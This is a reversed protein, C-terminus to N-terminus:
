TPAEHDESATVALPFTSREIVLHHMRHLSSVGCSTIMTFIRGRYPRRRQCTRTRSRQLCHPLWRIAVLCRPGLGGAPSLALPCPRCLRDTALFTVPMGHLPSLRAEDLEYGESSAEATSSTTWGPATGNPSRSRVPLRRPGCSWRTSARRRTSTLFEAVEAAEPRNAATPSILEIGRDWDLLVRLGVDALDIDVFTFGLEQWFSAARDQNDRHVCFVVHHLAPVSVPVANPM